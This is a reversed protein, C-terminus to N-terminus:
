QVAQYEETAVIKGGEGAVDLMLRQSTLLRITKIVTDNAPSIFLLSDTTKYLPSVKIKVRQRPQQARGANCIAADPIYFVFFASDLRNTANDEFRIRYGTRCSDNLYYESRQQWTKTLNSLLLRKIQAPTYVAPEETDDEGCSFLVGALLALM